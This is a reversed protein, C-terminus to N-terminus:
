KARRVNMHTLFAATQCSAPPQNRHLLAHDNSHGRRRLPLRLRAAPPPAGHQQPWRRAWHQTALPYLGRHRRSPSPHNPRGHRLGAAPFSQGLAALGPAKEQRGRAAQPRPHRRLVGQSPLRPLHPQQRASPDFPTRGTRPHPEVDEQASALSPGQGTTAVLSTRGSIM